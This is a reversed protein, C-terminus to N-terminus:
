AGRPPINRNFRFLNGPDWATKLAVLRDWEASSFASRIRVAGTEGDLFNVYGAGDAFPAQRAALRELASRVVAKASEDIGLGAANVSFGAGTRNLPSLQDDPVQLAGGLHRFEVFLLPSKQTYEAVVADILAPTLDPVLDSHLMVPVPDRPEASISDIALAPMRSVSDIMPIGLSRRLQRVADVGPALAAGSWCLRVGAFSRGRLEAPVAPLPPFNVLVASSAMEDPQEHAWQAYGRLVRAAYPLPYLLAGGYVVDLEVLRVELATVIGLNGASGRLGWFLEPHSTADVTMLEGAATVLEASRIAQSAFGHHRGLWGFGGGLSYGVVGVLSNSGQLGFLGHRSARANLEAWTVGAEVRATRTVPDVFLGKMRSTNILMGGDVRHGTGHGTAMVGVGLGEARALRVAEVVHEAHEALAVIAPRHSGLLNWATVADVYGPDGPRLYRVPAIRRETRMTSM